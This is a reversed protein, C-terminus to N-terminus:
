RLMAEEIEKDGLSHATKLHSCFNEQRPWAKDASKCGSITCNYNKILADVFHESHKSKRHRNLENFTSFGETPSCDFVDCVFLEKHRLDHKKLDNHSKVQKHCTPCVLPSIFEESPRQSAPFILPEPRPTGLDHSFVSSDGFGPLSGYGTESGAVFHSRETYTPSSPGGIQSHDGQALGWRAIPDTPQDNIDSDPLIERGSADFMLPRPEIEDGILEKTLAFNRSTVYGVFCCAPDDPLLNWIAVPLSLLLLTSYSKFCGEVKVHKVFAPIRSLWRHFQDPQLNDQDEELAVSLLVHPHQMDGNAHTSTLEIIQGQLTDLSAEVMSPQIPPLMSQIQETPSVRCIEISQPRPDPSAIYYVPTTCWELRTGERGKEPRKRKLQRLMESHLLCVPFFPKSKWDELVEVLTNTFSYKGPPPARGNFGSAGITEITGSGSNNASSAAACCDFLFLTDSSTNEFLSQISSWDVSPSKLDRTHSWVSQRNENITGHGAYYVIFLNDRADFEEIFDLAMGM